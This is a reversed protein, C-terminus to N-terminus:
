KGGDEDAGASPTAAVEFTAQPQFYSTFAERVADAAHTQYAEPAGVVDDLRTSRYTSAALVATWFSPELMREDLATAIQRRVTQMEEETPGGSAFAAYMERLTRLLEDVKQPDTSSFAYLMGFGPFEMAATANAGISYVLAKEERVTQIMRNTLVRAAINLLQQDRVADREAGFFGSIAYAKDTQTQLTARASLPGKPRALTRLPELTRPSIWERAPLSGLYTTALQVAREHSIDGVISVEIPARAVTTTLWQQAAERTLRDLQDATLARHRADGPPYITDNFQDIFVFEVQMGRIALIQKQQDKWQDFAAQEIVPDTLLLHALQLGTELDAPSGSVSVGMTDMGPRGSVSVKRGTLLDRIDNSSLTSTAPRQWAVAAADAIGRNEGTEQINGAALSITVTVQDKRYDMFRHHLRVGNSLWASWVRSTEHESSEEVRGPAPPTDMLAAARAGEARAEPSVELAATALSLFDGESPIEASSPVELVFLLGPASTDFEAGFARSVEEDAIEPVLRRILDLEQEAGMIPEGSAIADNMAGLLAEAPLTPETEVAREAAAILEKRADGIERATFGHLAARRLETGLETLMPRWKAPDGSVLTEAIRVARFEDSASASARQFSAEGAAVLRSMRRNFAWAGLHEVLDRRYGEVTTAPERAPGVRLVSVEARALEPDHVVAARNKTARTVRADQDPPAAGRTGAALHARLREVIAKEDMDAVAIVTMNSPTYLRKYYDLFDPRAVSRITEEVGIPLREGVLSGPALRKFIEEQVRQRGGLSARREELIIQREREIEPEPLSLHFAVDSLFLLGKDLTEPTNDPLALQYVTQDFSTFANQHQGFTLGLSQFFPLVSGPPFHESGNFAMHELYHALGRQPDTENLSGTSIHLWVAARGPPVPHRRVIYKLGNDFEGTVPRPDVPLPDAPQLPAARLTAPAPNTPQGGAVIPILLAAILSSSLRLFRPRM